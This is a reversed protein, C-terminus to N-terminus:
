GPAIYQPFNAFFRLVIAQLDGCLFCLMGAKFGSYRGNGIKHRFFPFSNIGGPQLESTIVIIKFFDSNRASRACPYV